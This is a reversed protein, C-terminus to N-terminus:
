FRSGIGVIYICLYYSDANVICVSIKNEYVIQIKLLKQEKRKWKDRVNKLNKM